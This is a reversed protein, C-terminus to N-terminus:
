YNNYNRSLEEEFLRFYRCREKFNTELEKKLQRKKTTDALSSIVRSSQIKPLKNKHKRKIIIEEVLDQGTIRKNLRLTAEDISNIVELKSDKKEWESLKEVIDYDDESSEETDFKYKKKNKRGFPSVKSQSTSRLLPLLPKKFGKLTNM